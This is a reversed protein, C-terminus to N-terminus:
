SPKWKIYSKGEHCHIACLEDASQYIGLSSHETLWNLVCVGNSFQIGEAIIGTGSIGSVDEIRVLEFQKM